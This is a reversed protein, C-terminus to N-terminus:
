TGTQFLSLLFIANEENNFLMLVLTLGRAEEKALHLDLNTSNTLDHFDDLDLSPKALELVAVGECGGVKACVCVCM